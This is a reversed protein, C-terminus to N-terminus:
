GCVFEGAPTIGDICNNWNDRIGEENEVESDKVENYLYRLKDFYLLQCSVISFALLIKSGELRFDLHKEPPNNILSPVKPLLHMIVYITFIVLLAEIMSQTFIQLRSKNRDLPTIFEDNYWASTLIGVMFYLLGFLLIDIVFLIKKWWPYEFMYDAGTYQSSLGM